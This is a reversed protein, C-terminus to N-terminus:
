EAAPVVDPEVVVVASECGCNKEVAQVVQDVGADSVEGKFTELITGNTAVLIIAPQGDLEIGPAAAFKEINKVFLAGAQDAPVKGAYDRSLGRRILGKVFFPVKMVSVHYAKVDASLVGADDLAAYWELLRDGQWQGNDQEESIALLVINLSAGSFDDPFVFDEGDLTEMEVRQFSGPEDAVATVHWGPVLLLAAVLGACIKQLHIAYYFDSTV